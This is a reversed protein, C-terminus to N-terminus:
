KAWHFLKWNYIRDKQSLSAQSPLCSGERLYILDNTYEDFQAVVAIIYALGYQISSEQYVVVVAYLGMFISSLMASLIAIVVVLPWCLVALGAVPVCVTELFPGERGILDQLLRRWGRLLM